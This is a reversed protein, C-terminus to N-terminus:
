LAYEYINMWQNPLWGKGSNDMAKHTWIQIIMVQRHLPPIFVHQNLNGYVVLLLPSSELSISKIGGKNLKFVMKNYM